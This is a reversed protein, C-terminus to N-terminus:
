KPNSFRPNEYWIVGLNTREECTLIDLDGDDDLDVLEIRDFKIGEPGSVSVSRNDFVDQSSVPGRLPILGVGSRDDTAGECTFIIELDGDGDLDAADVAKATGFRDPFTQRWAQWGSGSQLFGLVTRPKAAALVDLRGDDNLDILRAFMVESDEGGLRHERWADPDALRDPGPNEMWGVGRRDGKRDSFFLDPDGDDDFDHAAITMIWGVPRVPVYRGLSSGRDQGFWGLSANPGKGAAVLEVAGDGDLDVAIGYMWMQTSVSVSIPRTSWSGGQNWESDPGSREHVFLSRTSGEAASIIEVRGDGDLDVLWADEVHRVAGVTVSLWPDHVSRVGPHLALRVQGGEEWGTAITLRGDGLLDGLRVGDAGQSSRDITHRIWFERDTTDMVSASAMAHPINVIFFGQLILLVLGFRTTPNVRSKTM